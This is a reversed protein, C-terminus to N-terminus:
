NRDQGDHKQRYIDRGAHRLENNLRTRERPRLTGDARAFREDVRIRAQEAELRRAEPRTLEGSRIGQRIRVQERHEIRNISPQAWVSSATCIVCIGMGSLLHSLKLKM